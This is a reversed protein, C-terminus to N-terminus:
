WLVSDIFIALAAESTWSASAGKRLDVCPALTDSVRPSYMAAAGFRNVNCICGPKSLQRTLSELLVAVNNLQDQGFQVQPRQHSHCGDAALPVGQSTPVMEPLCSTRGEWAALASPEIHLHAFFKSPVRRLKNLHTKSRSRPARGKQAHIRTSSQAKSTAM